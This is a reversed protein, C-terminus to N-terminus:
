AIRRIKVLKEIEIAEHLANALTKIGEDFGFRILMDNLHTFESELFDVRSELQAIKAQLEKVNDM